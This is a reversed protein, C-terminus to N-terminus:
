QEPQLTVNAKIVPRTLCIIYEHLNGTAGVESSATLKAQLYM